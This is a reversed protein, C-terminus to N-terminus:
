IHQVYFAQWVLVPRPITTTTVTSDHDYMRKQYIVFKLSPLHCLCLLMGISNLCLEPSTCDLGEKPVVIALTKSWNKYSPGMYHRFTIITSAIAM